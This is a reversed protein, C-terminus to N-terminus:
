SLVVVHTVAPVVSTRPEFSTTQNMTNNM